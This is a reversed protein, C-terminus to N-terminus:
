LSVADRRSSRLYAEVDAKTFYISARKGMGISHYGLLGGAKLREVTRVSCGIMVAAQEFTLREDKGM